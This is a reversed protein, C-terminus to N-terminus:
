EQMRAAALQPRAPEGELAHRARRITQYVDRADDIMALRPPTQRGIMPWGADAMVGSMGFPLRSEGLEITGSGDRKTKLDLQEITSLRKSQVQDLRKGTVIIVRSNTVGYYTHKRKHAARFFRGFMMYLGVAVFLLGFIAFPWVGNWLVVTEWVLAFGGWVLSFPILFWDVGTLQVGQHPQGAWLLEEDPDLERRIIHAATDKM